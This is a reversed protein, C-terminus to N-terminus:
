KIVGLDALMSKLTEYNNSKISISGDMGAAKFGEELEAAPIGAMYVVSEPAIEKIAKSVSPVLEPYTDDTSCIVAYKAGSEKFAKAADEATAFGNPYVVEFGGVEFFGRIFDARIKHQVLPGMTALFVKPGHGNKEKFEASAKRLAEFHEVARRIELPKVSLGDACKCVASQLESIGAGKEAASVLEAIAEAGAAGKLDVGVDARESSVVKSREEFLEACKCEGKDLLKESMNAYNNTGVVSSRRTDYLKKKAAATKAIADQVFGSELAKLMGGESEIKVFFEWAKAALERTLNEVYYSGGAPDIVDTLACEEQLIIQQNRAIRSSFEDPKRIIEDFAGVTMSDVGGIAGEFAETAARLINVYPDYVTKNYISTRAGLRIKKSEESGGFEGIIKAFLMKAARLKAIEMFFNSGLSVRFRIMSAAADIDLGREMMARIYAVATAFAAGLEEVASAGASSYAMTDVGIAGFDPMNKINYSCLAFMENYACDLSRSLKGTKALTGLPDFFIGGKLKKGREAAFLIAEIGAAASEVYVNVPVASTDVGALAREFDKATSVSLGGSAVKGKESKDADVANASACDLVIEVSNQGKSLADILSANFKEPLGEAIEQSVKWPSGKAGEPKTGRVYDDFGPLSVDFNMDAQCYIPKLTIGEPTNTYMKKEFPAGKLLKVAEAKWEEYTPVKFETFLKENKM